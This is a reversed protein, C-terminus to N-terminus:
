DSLASAAALRRRLTRTLLGVWPLRDYLAAADWYDRHLTVRGDADFELESLGDIALPRGEIRLSFCWGLVAATANTYRRGVRFQPAEAVAFMHHFIASIAAIGRVDNFPDIFRADASYVTDLQPLTLPSLTEYFHAVRECAADLDPAAAM